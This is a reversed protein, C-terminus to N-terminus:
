GPTPVSRPVGGPGKVVGKAYRERYDQMEVVLAKMRIRRAIAIAEDVLRLAADAEGHLHTHWSFAYLSRVLDAPSSARRLREVCESFRAKGLGWKGLKSWMSGEYLLVLAENVPDGLKHFLAGAEKLAPEGRVFDERRLYVGAANYLGFALMRLNGIRRALQIGQEYELAAENHQNLFHYGAGLSIHLKALLHWDGLSEALALAHRKRELSTKHDGRHDLYRAVAVELEAELEKMGLQRALVRSRDCLRESRQIDGRGEALMSLAHLVRAEGSADKSARYLALGAELREEAAENEGLRRYIDGLQHHAGAIKREFGPGSTTQIIDRYIRIAGDLEGRIDLAQARLLRLELNQAPDDIRPLLRDLIGLLEQTEHKLIGRGDTVALRAAATFDDAEVLHFLGELARPEATSLYFRAAMGHFRKREKASAIEIIASRILDHVDFVKTSVELLLTQEVLSRITGPEVGEEEQLADASVPSRFVSALTLARTEVPTIKSFLEENLFRHIDAAVGGGHLDALELFLPHGRTRRVLADLEAEPLRANRTQLLKRASEPDLGGLAIERVTEKIRVDRRDYFPRVNRGAVILKADKITELMARFAYFFNRIAPEANHYDDFVLVVSVGDLDAALIGVMQEIDTGQTADLYQALGKRSIRTLFEAIQLAVGRLTTWPLIRHFLLHRRERWDDLKRALFTTKGIGALGTIVLVREAPSELWAEARALEAERGFFHRIRSMRDTLDVLKGRRTKFSALDFVGKSVHTVVDFLTAFDTMLNPIDGMRLKRGEGSSDRFLVIEEEIERRRRNAADVGDQSLVYVTRRISGSPVHARSGRVLGEKMLGRISKSVTSRVLRIGDAIGFQTMQDPLAFDDEFGVFELLHLLIRDRTDYFLKRKYYPNRAVGAAM